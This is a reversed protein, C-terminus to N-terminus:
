RVIVAGVRGELRGKVRELTALNTPAKRGYAPDVHKSPVFRQLVYRKAGALEGAVGDLDEETLLGEVVTTRFEHDVGSAKLIEVSARIVKPDVEVGAAETYRELPAKVDMAVFDVLRAALLEDLVEPRSGNTDIKVLFGKARVRKLFALLGKQITPEGGTVVVADLKGRRRDLFSLISDVELTEEYSEPLVLEPNHCYPCRFNCGQTFVVASIYPPYDILSVKQHAGIRM